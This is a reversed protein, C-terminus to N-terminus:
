QEGQLKTKTSLDHIQQMTFAGQPRSDNVAVANPFDVDNGFHPPYILVFRNTLDGSFPQPKLSHPKIGHDFLVGGVWRDEAWEDPPIPATSLIESARSSTWYAFGSCWPKPRTFNIFGLYDTTPLSGLLNDANVYTDDDTKFIFDYNNKRAWVHMARVKLPLSKYDDPVDLFVEDALPKRKQKALFFRVEADKIDKVWTSRQANARAKFDECTIVAILTKHALLQNPTQLM